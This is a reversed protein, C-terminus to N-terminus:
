EGACAGGVGCLGYSGYVCLGDCIKNNGLVTLAAATRGELNYFHACPGASERNVHEVVQTGLVWRNVVRHAVRGELRAWGERPRLLTTDSFQTAVTASELGGDRTLKGRIGDM